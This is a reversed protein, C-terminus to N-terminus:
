GLLVQLSRVHWFMLLAYAGFVTVSGVMALRHTRYRWLVFVGASVLVLKAVAFAVPHADLFAAMLPNAEVAKGGEVVLLTLVLDLLNFILTGALLTELWSLLAGSRVSM